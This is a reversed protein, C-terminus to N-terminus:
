SNGDKKYQYLLSGRKTQEQPSQTHFQSQPYNPFNRNSGSPKGFSTIGQKSPTQNTFKVLNNIKPTFDRQPKERVQSIRTDRHTRGFILKDKAFPLTQRWPGNLRNKYDFNGETVKGFTTIPDFKRGDLYPM